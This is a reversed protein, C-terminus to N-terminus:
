SLALSEEYIVRRTKLYDGLGFFRKDSPYNDRDSVSIYCDNEIDMYDWRKPSGFIRMISEFDSKDKMDFVYQSESGKFHSIWLDVIYRDDVIAFDHGDAKLIDDHKCRPNDKCYFGYIDAREGYLEKILFASHTCISLSEGNPLFEEKYPVGSPHDYMDKSYIGCKEKTAFRELLEQKIDTM